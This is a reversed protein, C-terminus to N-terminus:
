TIGASAVDPGSPDLAARDFTHNKIPSDLKILGGAILAVAPHCHTLRNAGPRIAPEPNPQGVLHIGLGQFDNESGVADGLHLAIHPRRAM